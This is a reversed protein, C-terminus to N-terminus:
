QTDRTYERVCLSVYPEINGDVIGTNGGFLGASGCFFCVNKSLQGSDLTCVVGCMEGCYDVRFRIHLATKRIYLARKWLFVVNKSFQGLDLSSPVLRILVMVDAVSRIRLATKCIHERRWWFVM